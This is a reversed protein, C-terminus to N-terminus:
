FNNESRIYIIYVIYKHINFIIPHKCLVYNGEISVVLGLGPLPEQSSSEMVRPDQGPLNDGPIIQSVVVWTVEINHLYSILSRSVQGDYLSFLAHVLIVCKIYITYLTIKEENYKQGIVLNTVKEILGSVYLTFPNFYFSPLFNDTLLINCYSM